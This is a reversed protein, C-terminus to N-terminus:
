LLHNSNQKSGISSYFEDEKRSVIHVGIWKIKPFQSKLLQQAFNIDVNCLEVGMIINEFDLLKAKKKMPSEVDSVDIVEQFEKCNESITPAVDAPLSLEMKIAPSTAVPHAVPVQPPQNLITVHVSLTSQILKVVKGAENQNDTYFVLKGPIELGGQLL